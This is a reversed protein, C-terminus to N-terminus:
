EQVGSVRWGDPTNVVKLSVINQQGDMYLTINRENDSPAERDIIRFGTADSMEMPGSDVFSGDSMEMQMADSLQPTLSALYTQEDGQSIAWTVTEIAAEPTDYGAFSWNERPYIDEPPVDPPGNAAIASRTRTLEDRVRSLEGQLAALDNTKRRLSEVERRLNDLEALQVDSLPTTSQAVINSLRLNDVELRNLRDLLDRSSATQERWRRHAEVQMAVLVAIIALAAIM